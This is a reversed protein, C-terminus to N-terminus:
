NDIAFGLICHQMVGSVPPLSREPDVAISQDWKYCNREDGWYTVHMRVPKAKPGNWYAVGAQISM